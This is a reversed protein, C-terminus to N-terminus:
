RRPTYPKKMHGRHMKMKRIPKQRVPEDLYQYKVNPSVYIGDQIILHITDDDEDYKRLAQYTKQIDELQIMAVRTRWPDLPGDIESDEHLEDLINSMYEEILEPEDEKKSWKMGRFYLRGRCMPCTDAKEFWEKICSTCFTHKCILTKRSGTIDSMCISCEM